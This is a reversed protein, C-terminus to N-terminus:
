RRWLYMPRRQSAAPSPPNLHLKIQPVDMRAFVLEMLGPRRYYKVVHPGSVGAMQAAKKIADDAYGIGDILDNQRAQEATFLQGEALPRVEEVKLSRGDAVVRLFREFMADMVGRLLEKEEEWQEPTKDATPSGIDKYPGTALSKDEVGVKDLLEAASFLPMMVGISGTITTPHAMIHDAACSVYYAGSAAVDEMLVVVPEGTESRYDTVTKHMVDSATIGGGGSDVALIIARVATDERARELMAELLEPAGTRAVGPASMLLGRVPLVAIKPRGQEGSVTVEQLALRAGAGGGVQAGAIAMGILGVVLAIGLLVVFGAGGVVVALCGIWWRRTGAPAQSGQLENTDSM